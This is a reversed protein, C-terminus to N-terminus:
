ALFEFCSNGTQGWRVTRNSQRRMTFRQDMPVTVTVFARSFRASFSSASFSNSVSLCAFDVFGLRLKSSIKSSAIRNTAVGQFVQLFSERPGFLIASLGIQM